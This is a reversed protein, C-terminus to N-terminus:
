SPGKSIPDAAELNKELTREFMNSDYYHSFQDKLFFDIEQKYYNGLLKASEQAWVTQGKIDQYPCFRLDLISAALKHQTATGLCLGNIEKLLRPLRNDCAETFILNLEHSLIDSSRSIAIHTLYCAIQKDEPTVCSDIFEKIRAFIYETVWDFALEAQVPSLRPSNKLLLELKTIIHYTAKFFRTSPQLALCDTSSLADTLICQPNEKNSKLNSLLRTLFEIKRVGKQVDSGLLRQLESRIIRKCLFFLEDTSEVYTFPKLMEILQMNDKYTKKSDEITESLIDRILKPQKNASFESQFITLNDTGHSPKIAFAITDFCGQFEYENIAAHYVEAIFFPDNAFCGCGFAGLVLNKQRYKKAVRLQNLIKFVIGARYLSLPLKETEDSLNYAASSIINVRFPTIPESGDETLSLTSVTVNQTYLATFEGFGKRQKETSFGLNDKFDYKFPNCLDGKVVGDLIQLSALLTTRQILSEEQAFSSLYDGGVLYQNAMNLIAIETKEPTLLKQAAVLCDVPMIKIQANLIKTSPKKRSLYQHVQTEEVM